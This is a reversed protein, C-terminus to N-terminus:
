KMPDRRGEFTALLWAIVRRAVEAPDVRRLSHDAGAFPELIARDGLRDLVGRLLRMDSLADRDGAVFLMPAGLDYLHRDRLQHKKGEPHLPYSLFVLGDVPDGEAALMSAVRGGMSRGGLVVRKASGRVEAVTARAAEVLKPMRDPGRRGAIRYPFRARVANAGAGSAARALEVLFPSDIDGGAGHWLVLLTGDLPGSAPPHM